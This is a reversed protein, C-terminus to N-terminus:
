RELLRAAYNPTGGSMEQWAMGLRKVQFNLMMGIIATPIWVWIAQVGLATHMAPATGLWLFLGSLGFGWTELSSLSRPLRMAFRQNKGREHDVPTTAM